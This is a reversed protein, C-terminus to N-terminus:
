EPLVDKVQSLLRLDDVLVRCDLLVVLEVITLREEM